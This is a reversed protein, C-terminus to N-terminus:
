AKLTDVLEKGRKLDAATLVRVKWPPKGNELRGRIFQDRRKNQGGHFAAGDIYIAMRKERVAFDAVSITTESPAATLEVQKEPNFGHEEFLRLFKLELPSGVGAAYAELWPRPDNGDKQDLPQGEPKCAALQRLDGIIRPWNLHKHQRQNEYTKLCRYCSTECNPHKLHEIATKAVQDFENGVRELYGSGGVSSDTFTLAMRRYGGLEHSEEWPGELTFSMERDGLLYLRNIGNLLATGLSYGWVLADEEEINAPLWAELRLVEAKQVTVIAAPEPKMGTRGCNPAHGFQDKDEAKKPKKRGKAGEEDHPFNLTRGCQPCLTFGCAEDHLLQQGEKRNRETQGKNPEPGENIWRVEEDKSLSLRWGPGVSWRQKTAGNWQPYSKVRNKAARREEEDMIPTEQRIALFGGYEYSALSKGQEDHKCRPCVQESGAYRLHCQSCIRYPLPAETRPNWPSSNDLGVVKWRKTRAYVPSEPVFQGIGQVRGVTVPNEENPDGVLRVSAPESPFEYGPLLGFEAFRRLPYGASNDDASDKKSKNDSPIGLLRAVLDGARMGPQRGTLQDAYRDLASRLEVVQKATRDMVDRIKGPLADLYNSLDGQTLGVKKLIEDGWAQATLELTYAKQAEVGKVLADVEEANVVGQPNVYQLMRGALGPEAAGIAIAGVHRLLVDKNGLSMAPVPIEGAIMEQPNDYFYSDHPARRAYGVVLGVRTRRGARGGRQAYNDPRPPINRLILADLGGVDIGMEMTPSCALINLPSEDAGAKFNEEIEVRKETTVQATHEEAHLPIFKESQLRRVLRHSNVEDDPWAAAKGECKPCPAGEEARPLPLFCLGCRKREEKTPIYLRVREANLQYLARKDRVGALDNLVLFNGKVLFRMFEEADEPTVDQGGFFKVLTQLIRQFAPAKGGTGPKRWTNSMGIGRPLSDRDMWAVPQGDIAPLGRPDRFKREWQAARVYDPCNSHAPHYRLMERNLMARTRCEDLYCRCIHLLQSESIGWKAKLNGGVKQVFEDLQNYYVAVLGLNLVTGRYASTVALEDLLPAEEWARMRAHDEDPFWERYGPMARNDGRAIGMEELAQVMQQIGMPGSAKLSAVLNRRMRDYRGAFQIFRAQHSADQRSDSFILLREKGDHGEKNANAAALSEVLGESLVKIAASTGLSVPTIVNRSGATGGCCVCRKRSPLLKVRLPYESPNSSFQLTEVKFSGERIQEGAIKKIRSAKGRPQEEEEEEEDQSVKTNELRVPDYLLWERGDEQEKQVELAGSDPNGRLLLYDAGCSRCLHLPATKKGCACQEEGMPYIRGCKADVCRTFAWGGRVFRHARLRLGGPTGEPLAAGASLAIEAEARVENLNAGAREPVEAIIKEAIQTISLPAKILWTGLLWLLKCQQAAQEMPTNENIGALRCLTKRVAETDHVNVAAAAPIEKAIRAEAPITIPQLEEGLVVISNPDEGTLRGFFDGVVAQRQKNQEEPPVEASITKITASTGICLTKPHRRKQEEETKLASGWEQKARKLHAKLRRLLLAINSGLVGRYTHVEDLVIFRCRHNAFIAERDHPRVLLYELMMYNTLLISPPNKRMREREDEATGRDYKQVVVDKAGADELLTEIRILQDNALANMPYVLVATLGAKKPFLRSDEIANQIVPLLFCESKGSGTGTTVVLGSAKPGLLHTIAESQHLYAKELKTRKVMAAALSPDIPMDKWALGTKFPRHAQFYPEQALFLPRKLEAEMDLQLKLDRARFESLIHDEYERLVADLTELPHLSM